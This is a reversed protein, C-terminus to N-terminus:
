PAAYRNAQGPVSGVARIRVTGYLAASLPRRRSRLRGFSRLYRSSRVALSRPLVPAALRRWDTLGSTRKVQHLTAVSRAPRAFPQMVLDYAVENEREIPYAMDQVRTDSFDLRLAATDDVYLPRDRQRGM